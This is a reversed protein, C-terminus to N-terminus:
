RVKLIETIETFIGLQGKSQLGFRMSTLVNERYLSSYVISLNYSRVRKCNPVRMKKAMVESCLLSLPFPKQKVSM